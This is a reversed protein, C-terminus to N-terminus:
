ATLSLFVRPMKMKYFSRYGIHTVGKPIIISELSGGAFAYDGIIRVGNPLSLSKEGKGTAYKYFTSGDKSYVNGDVSKYTPNDESVTIDTLSPCFSLATYGMKKVSSGIRVTTLKDCSYIANGIETVSDSITISTINDCNYFANGEIKTVMLGNIHSGIVVDTDTCSGIGTISVSLPNFIIKYELGSSGDTLNANAKGCSCLGLVLFVILVVLLLLKKM